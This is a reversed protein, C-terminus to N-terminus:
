TIEDWLCEVISGLYGLMATQCLKLHCWICLLDIRLRKLSNGFDVTDRCIEKVLDCM